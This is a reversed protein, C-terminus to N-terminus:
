GNSSEEEFLLKRLEKALQKKDQTIKIADLAFEQYDNKNKFQDLIIRTSCLKKLPADNTYELWSTKSDVGPFVVLGHAINNLNIYASLHLLYQNSAVHVAQFQGQFLVGSRHYKNNFYKTYGGGVRKMFESVGKDVVQRLLIHFHNPNLCYCVIEVLSPTKGAELKSTRNGLRPSFSNEYISGIPQIVNFEALSQLFRGYDHTDQFITRKDTGRNYIHYFEGSGFPIKRM